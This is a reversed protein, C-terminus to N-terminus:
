IGLLLPEGSFPRVTCVRHQGSLVPLREDNGALDLCFRLLPSVYGGLTVTGSPPQAVEKFSERAAAFLEEFVTFNVHERFWKWRHEIPNVDAGCYPPLWFCAFHPHAKLWAQILRNRHLKKSLAM